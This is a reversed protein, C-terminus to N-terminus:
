HTFHTGGCGRVVVSITNLTLFSADGLEFSLDVFENGVAVLIVARVIAARTLLLALV